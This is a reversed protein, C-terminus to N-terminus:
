PQTVPVAMRLVTDRNFRPPKFQNFAPVPSQDPDFAVLVANGQDLVPTLDLGEPFIFGRQNPQNSNM